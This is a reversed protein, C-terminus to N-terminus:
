LQPDSTCRQRLQLRDHPWLPSLHRCQSRPRCDRRGTGPHHVATIRGALDRSYNVLRGSPYSIQTLNGDLDYAYGLSYSIGEISYTKSSLNGRHDYVWDIDGSNDTVGTRRGICYNCGTGTDYRYSINESSDAPYSIATLRNLADYSYHSIVGRADTQQIRNGADDYTYTTTGTDPSTLSLLNGFADYDYTTVLGRQDTVTKIRDQSDYTYGVEFTDPDTQTVLRNLADFAQGNPNGRGDTVQTQNGNKDYEFGTTQNNAGVNQLLRSLEDFLQTQTSVLTGTGDKIEVKTRNGAADLTYEMREGLNNSMATMRRADDYEYEVFAGGPM